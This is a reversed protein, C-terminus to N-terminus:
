GDKTTEESTHGLVIRLSIDMSKSIIIAKDQTTIGIIIKKM